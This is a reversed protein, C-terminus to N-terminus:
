RVMIAGAYRRNAMRWGEARWESAGRFGDTLAGHVAMRQAEQFGDASAGRAVM